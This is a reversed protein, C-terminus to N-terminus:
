DPDPNDKLIRKLWDPIRISEASDNEPIYPKIDIVPTDAFADIKDVEIVNGKISIIKCLSMGILNPRAPSRTAFVGRLPNEKKGKPHVQLTSRKEPTDNRDFWYFVYMHSFDSLGLLGSEYQEDLVITTTDGAKQVVGISYISFQKTKKPYM